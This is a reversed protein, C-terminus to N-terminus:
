NWDIKPCYKNYKAKIFEALISPKPEYPVYDPNIIYDGNEDWIYERQKHRKKEKRRQLLHVGGFTIAIIICVFWTIAGAMQWSGILTEKSLLGYMLYTIPSFIMLFAFFLLVWIMIGAFLRTDWEADKSDKMVILPLSCFALPLIFIWMLVLKWFYPCLNQPMHSTRYFWRYLRASVSNTNLKM